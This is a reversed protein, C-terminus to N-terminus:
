VLSAFGLDAIKLGDGMRYSGECALAAEEVQRAFVASTVVDWPSQDSTNQALFGIATTKGVPHEKVAAFHVGARFPEIRRKMLRQPIPPIASIMRGERGSACCEM